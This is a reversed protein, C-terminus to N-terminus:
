VGKRNSRIHQYLIFCAFGLGYIASSQLLMRIDIGKVVSLPLVSVFTIFSLSCILYILVYTFQSRILWIILPALIMSLIIVILILALFYLQEEKVGLIELQAINIIDLMNDYM